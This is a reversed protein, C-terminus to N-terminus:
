TTLNNAVLKNGGSGGDFFNFVTNGKCRNSTVLYDNSSGTDINVGRANAGRNAVNGARHGVIEFNSVGAGVRIGYVANASSYGGFVKFNKVNVGIFAMGANANAVAQCNNLEFGDVTGSGTYTVLLGNSGASLGFWTNTFLVDYVSGAPNILASDANAVSSTAGASDFLNGSGRLAYNHLGAPTDIWLAIGHTTVNNDTLFGTDGNHIRIGFDPQTAPLVTGAIVNTKVVANAYNVLWIAGSGAAVKPSFFNCDIIEPTVVLTGTTGAAVGVFYNTFQCRYVGSKNGALRVMTTGTPNGTHTIGIGTITSNSGVTILDGSTGTLLINGSGYVQVGNPITISPVVYTGNLLLRGGSSLSALASILPTPSSSFDEVSVVDGNKAYQTRNKYGVLAAGKAPDSINGLDAINTKLNLATNTATSVPKNADSTNDVNSLGVDVKTLSVDGTRGSVSTVPSLVTLTSGDFKYDVGTGRLTVIFWKPVPTSFYTNNIVYYIRNDTTNFYATGNVAVPLSSVIGDINKDFMYSFKLLNEDMGLNWNSEGLSWGFKGELFPSTQQTM